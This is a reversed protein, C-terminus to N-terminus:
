ERALVLLQPLHGQVFDGWYGQHTEFWLGLRDGDTWAARVDRLWERCGPTGIPCLDPPALSESPAAGWSAPGDPAIRTITLTVAYTAPYSILYAGGARDDIVAAPDIAPLSVATVAGAASIEYGAGVGVLLEGGGPRIAVGRLAVVAPLAAVGGVGFGADLAGTAPDIRRVAVDTILDVRPAATTPRSVRRIPGAFAVHGGVGFTPVPALQADLLWADADFIVLVRGGAVAIMDRVPGAQPPAVAAHLTGAVDRRRLEVHGDNYSFASVAQDDDRLVTAPCTIRGNTPTAPAISYLDETLGPTTRYTVVSDWYTIDDVWHTAIACTGFRTGAGTIAGPYGQGFRVSGDGSFTPDLVLRPLPDIPTGDIPTADTAADVPRADIVAADPVAADPVAADIVAADPGPGDIVAADIPAGDPTVEDPGGAVCAPVVLLSLGRLWGDTRMAPQNDRHRGINM